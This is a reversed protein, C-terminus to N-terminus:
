EVVIDIWTTVNPEITVQSRFRVRGNDSVLVEYEGEPLDGMTFNENWSASSNVTDDAYTFAYRVSGDQSLPTIEVATGYQLEGATNVVRGALTGFQPYPYIWLDPNRTAGFDLPDDARVEFHLHAGEAIGESGVTGIHDGANVVQGFEVDITNLHGYLTYIPLGDVTDLRHEIIVANGYYNPYPGIVLEDDQGAFIVTGGAAALVPTGRPNVFEVGKHTERRGRQTDGYAYTRDVYDVGSRAIPRIMAYQDVHTPYSPTPQPTASAESSQTPRSTASVQETGVRTTMSPSPTTTITAADSSATVWGTSVITVMSSRYDALLSYPSQTEALAVM